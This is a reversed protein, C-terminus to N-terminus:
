PAAVAVGTTGSQNAPPRGTAMNALLATIAATVAQTIKALDDESLASVTEQEQYQDSAAL